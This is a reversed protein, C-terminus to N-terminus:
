QRRRRIFALGSLGALLLVLSAPEPIRVNDLMLVSYIYPDETQYTGMYVSWLGGTPFTYSFSHGPVGGFWGALEIAVNMPGNSAFFRAGDINPNIFYFDFNLSDGASVVVDQGIYSGRVFVNQGPGFPNYTLPPGGSPEFPIPPTCNVNWIDTACSYPPVPAQSYNIVLASYQGQIPQYISGQSAMAAKGALFWGSLNGTEFDGNAIPGANSLAPMVFFSTLIYTYAAVRKPSTSM